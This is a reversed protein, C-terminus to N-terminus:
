AYYKNEYCPAKSVAPIHATMKVSEERGYKLSLPNDDVKISFNM